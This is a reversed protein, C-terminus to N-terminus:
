GLLMAILIGAYLFPALPITDKRKIKKLVILVLGTIAALMSGCFIAPVIGYLGLYLGTVAMLKVDGGGIGKRSVLYVLMFLTGGLIFGLSSDILLTVAQSTALLFLPMLTVVWAVLMALILKNPIKKTKMDLVAAIYGFAALLLYWLLVVGELQKARLIILMALIFPLGCFAANQKLNVIIRTM